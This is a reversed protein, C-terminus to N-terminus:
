LTVTDRAEELKRGGGRALFSFARQVEEMRQRREDKGERKERELRGLLASMAERQSKSLLALTIQIRDIKTLVHLVELVDTILDVGTKEERGEHGDYEEMKRSGGGSGEEEQLAEWLVVVVDGFVDANMERKEKGMVYCRNLSSAGGASLLSLKEHNTKGAKALQQWEREFTLPTTATASSSSPISSSSNQNGHMTTAANKRDYEDQLEYLANSNRGNRENRKVNIMGAARSSTTTWVQTRQAVNQIDKRTLPRLHACAVLNKFEEYSGVTRVARKKVVDVRTLRQDEDLAQHLEQQLKRMNLEGGGDILLSAAKANMPGKSGMIVVRVVGEAVPPQM